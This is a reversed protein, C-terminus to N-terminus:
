AGAGGGRVLPDGSAKCRPRSSRSTPSVWTPRGTSARWESRRSPQSARWRGWGTTASRQAPLRTRAGGSIGWTAYREVGLADAIADVDAACDAIVRGANRTSGGDGPRDYGPLRIGQERALAEHPGYLVGAGPMGHQM